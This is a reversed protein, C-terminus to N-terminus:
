LHLFINAKGKLSATSASSVFNKKKMKGVPRAFLPSCSFEEVKKRKIGSIPREFKDVQPKPLESKGSNTKDSLFLTIKRM